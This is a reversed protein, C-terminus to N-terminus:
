IADQMIASRVRFRNDKSLEGVITVWASSAGERSSLLKAIRALPVRIRFDTCKSLRPAWSALWAILPESRALLDGCNPCARMAEAIEALARGLYKSYDPSGDSLQLLTQMLDRLTNSLRCATEVDLLCGHELLLRAALPIAASPESNPLGQIWPELLHLAERGLRRILADVIYGLELSLNPTGTTALARLMGNAFPGTDAAAASMRGVPRQLLWRKTWPLSYQAFELPGADVLDDLCSLLVPLYDAMVAPTAIVSVIRELLPLDDTTWGIQAVFEPGIVRFQYDKAEAPPVARDLLVELEATVFPKAEAAIASKQDENLLPVLSLRDERHRARALLENVFRGRLQPRRLEATGLIGIRAGHHFGTSDNLGNIVDGLEQALALPAKAMWSHFFGANDMDWAFDTAALRLAEDRLLSWISSDPPLYPLIQAWLALTLPGPKDWQKRAACDSLYQIQWRVVSQWQHEPILDGVEQLLDWAARKQRHYTGLLRETLESLLEQEAFELRRLTTRLEGSEGPKDIHATRVVAWLGLAAWGPEIDPSRCAEFTATAQTRVAEVWDGWSWLRLASLEQLMALRFAGFREDPSRQKTGRYLELLVDAARNQRLTEFLLVPSGSMQLLRRTLGVPQDEGRIGHFRNWHHLDFLLRADTQEYRGNVMQHLERDLSEPAHNLLLAWLRAQWIQGSVLGAEEASIRPFEPQPCTLRSQLILRERTSNLQQRHSEPCKTLWPETIKLWQDTGRSHWWVLELLHCVLVGDELSDDARCWDFSFENIATAREELAALPQHVFWQYTSLAQFLEKSCVGFRNAELLLHQAHRLLYDHLLWYIPLVLAWKLEVFEIDLKRARLLERAESLAIAALHNVRLGDGALHSRRAVDRLYAFAAQQTSASM